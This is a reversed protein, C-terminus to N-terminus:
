DGLIAWLIELYSIKTRSIVMFHKLPLEDNPNGKEKFKLHYIKGLLNQTTYHGV